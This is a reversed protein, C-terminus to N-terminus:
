LIWQMLSIVSCKVPTARMGSLTDEKEVTPVAEVNEVVKPAIKPTCAIGALISLSLLYVIKLKM